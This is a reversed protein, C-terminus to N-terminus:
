GAVAECGCVKFIPMYSVVVCGFLLLAEGVALWAFYQERRPHAHLRALLIVAVPLPLLLLYPYQLLLLTPTPLDAGFSDFLTQFAPAVFLGYLALLVALLLALLFARYTTPMSM